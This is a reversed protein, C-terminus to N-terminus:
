DPEAAQDAESLIFVQQFGAAPNESYALIGYQDVVVKWYLGDEGAEPIMATFLYNGSPDFVDLTPITATGRRVWLNNEADVGLGTIQPRYPQPEYTTGPADLSILQAIRFAREEEIEPDTKKMTPMDLSLEFVVEADSNFGRIGYEDSSRPAIYVIGEPSTAMSYGMWARDFLGSADNPDEIEFTDLIFVVKPDFPGPGFLAVTIDVMLRGDEPSFGLLVGTYSSDMAGVIAFPPPMATRPQEHIWEGTDYRFRDMADRQVVYISGDESIAMFTALNLEGPGSGMRGIQRLFEGEPSYVMVRSFARDLLVISGDPDHALGEIAGLMYCSDGAAVGLTDKIALEVIHEEFPLAVPDPDNCGALLTLLFPILVLSISCKM